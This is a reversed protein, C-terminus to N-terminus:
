SAPHAIRLGPDGLAQRLVAIGALGHELVAGVSAPNLHALPAGLVGAADGDVAVEGLQFLALLAGGGGILEDQLAQAIGPADLGGDQRLHAIEGRTLASWKKIQSGRSMTPPSKKQNWGIRSPCATTTPSQVPWPTGPAKM